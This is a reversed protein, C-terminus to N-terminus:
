DKRPPTDPGDVPRARINKLAAATNYTAIGFPMSSEIEGFRMGIRKGTTTVDIVKEKDIWCEIKHPTVRARIHYWRNNEFNKSTSSENESADMGDLSSIGVLSGGWGGVILTCCNTGVPFTLGCFFDGGGTRMADVALEYDMRYPPETMHVGTLDNGKGLHIAGDKAEVKGKGIFDTKKWGELSKGDFLSEWEDGSKAEAKAAPKAAPKAPEAKAGPAPAAPKTQPEAARLAPAIMCTTLLASIFIRNQRTTKM